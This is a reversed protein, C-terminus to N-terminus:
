LSQDRYESPTLGTMKKFQRAFYSPNPYGVLEGVDYLKYRIDALLTKAHEIRVKTLYEILTEGTQEKFLACLYAQSLFAQECLRSVTLPEAYHKQIYDITIQISRRTSESARLSMLNKVEAAKKLAFETMDQLCKQNSLAYIARDLSFTEDDVSDIGSPLLAFLERLLGVLVQTCLAPNMIRAHKLEDSFGIIWKELENEDAILKDFHAQRIAKSPMYQMDQELSSVQKYLMVSGAGIYFWHMLAQRAQHIATPAESLGSIAGSIGMACPSSFTNSLDNILAHMESQMNEPAGSLLCAFEGNERNLVLSQIVSKSSNIRDLIPQTYPSGNMNAVLIVGMCGHKDPLDGTLEIAEAIWEDKEVNGRLIREILTEKLFGIGRRYNEMLKVTNMRRESEDELSRVVRQICATLEEM